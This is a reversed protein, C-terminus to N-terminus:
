PRIDRIISVIRNTRTDVFILDRGGFYRTYYAPLAPLRTGLDSPVPTLRRQLGPPLQGRERLQKSLGPPLSERKALGPPLTGRSYFEQVIRRHGAQDIVVVRSTDRTRQTEARSHEAADHGADKKKDAKAKNADSAGEHKKGNGNGNGNGNNKGHRHGRGQGGQAPLALISLSLMAIPLILTFSHKTM